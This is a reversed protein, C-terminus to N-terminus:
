SKFRAFPVVNRCFVTVSSIYGVQHTIFYFLYPYLYHPFWSYCYFDILTSPHKFYKGIILYYINKYITDILGSLLLKGGFGFLERFSAMSFLWEPRWRNWMWLMITSLVRSILQMAVLSWVGYGYIAMLIAVAGACINSIVSIRTQLRFDVRKTLITSQILSFSEIVLVLALM